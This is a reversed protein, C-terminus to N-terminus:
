PSHPLARLAAATQAADPGVIVHWTTNGTRVAGRAAAELAQPEIVGPDRLNVVLRTSWAEVTLLNGRGGLGRAINLALARPDVAPAPTGSDVGVDVKRLAARIDGALQDAIPGVVVQLTGASPRVFGRAGLRRLAPEDIAANDSVTLRLRTTCADIAQLNRAGGLAHVWGAGSADAETAPASPTDDEPERGPTSLNFRVITWRFVFYYIAFYAAGIPLLLLPNTSLKYNLLYDFLGASFGFGLHV